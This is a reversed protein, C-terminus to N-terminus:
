QARLAEQVAKAAALGLRRHAEQDLHIGDEPSAAAVAAADLFRCNLKDAARRYHEAFGNTKAPDGQCYLKMEASLTTALPPSVLLIDPARFGGRVAAIRTLDVLMSIGRAADEATVETYHLVDNTGLMLILLDVPAHSELLVPLLAAGSRGSRFPEELVTSRGNLGEEIVRAEGGLQAQLVGTWRQEFPHRRGSGPVYGWTNSDGYCLITKM